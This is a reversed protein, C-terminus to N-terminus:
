QTLRHNDGIVLRRANSHGEVDYEDNCGDSVM